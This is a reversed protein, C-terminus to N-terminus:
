PAAPRHAYLVGEELEDFYLGRQEIVRPAAAAAGPGEPTSGASAGSM